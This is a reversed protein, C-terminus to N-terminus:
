PPSLDAFSVSCPVSSFCGPVAGQDDRKNGSHSQHGRSTQLKELVSVCGLIGRNGTWLRNGLDEWPSFGDHNCVIGVLSVAELIM